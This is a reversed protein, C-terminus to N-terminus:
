SEGWAIACWRVVVYRVGCPCWAEAAICGHAASGSPVVPSMSSSLLRRLFAIMDIALIAYNYTYLAGKECFALKLLSVENINYIVTKNIQM